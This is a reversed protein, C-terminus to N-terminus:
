VIRPDNKEIPHVARVPSHTGCSIHSVTTSNNELRDVSTPKEEM